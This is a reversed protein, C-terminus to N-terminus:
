IYSETTSTKRKEKGKREEKKRGKKRKCTATSMLYQDSM